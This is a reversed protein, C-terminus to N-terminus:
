TKIILLMANSWESKGGDKNVAKMKFWRRASTNEPVQIVKTYSYLDSVETFPVKVILSYTGNESNAVYIEWGSFVSTDPIEQTWTATVPVSVTEEKCAVQVLLIVIGLLLICLAKRNLHM